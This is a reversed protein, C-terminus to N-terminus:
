ARGAGVEVVLSFSEAELLGLNEGFRPPIKPAKTVGSNKRSASRMAPKEGVSENPIPADPVPTGKWMWPGPNLSVSHPFFRQNMM